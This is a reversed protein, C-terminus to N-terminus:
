RCIRLLSPVEHIDELLSLLLNVRLQGLHSAIATTTTSAPVTAVTTATTAVAAVTTAM